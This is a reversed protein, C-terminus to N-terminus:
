VLAVPTISVLQSTFEHATFARHPVRALKYRVLNDRMSNINITEGCKRLTVTRDTKIHIITQGNSSVNANHSTISKLLIERKTVQNAHSKM